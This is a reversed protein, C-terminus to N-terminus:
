ADVNDKSQGNEKEQLYSRRSFKGWEAVFHEELGM